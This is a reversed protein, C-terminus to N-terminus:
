KKKTLDISKNYINAVEIFKPDVKEAKSTIDEGEAQYAAVPSEGKSNQILKNSKYYKSRDLQNHGFLSGINLAADGTKVQWKDSGKKRAYYTPPQGDETPLDYKYEFSKEVYTEGPKAVSTVKDYVARAEDNEKQSMKNIANRALGLMYNNPSSTYTLVNDPNTDQFLSFSTNTIRPKESDDENEELDEINGAEENEQATENSDIETDNGDVVEEVEEVNEDQPNNKKWEQAKVFIEEQSLNQDQLSQIYELLTM